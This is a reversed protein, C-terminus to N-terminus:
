VTLCTQNVPEILAQFIDAVRRVEAPPRHNSLFIADSYPDGPHYGHMGKPMWGKGHFNSRTLLVGPDMLFIVEGYRRDAFFVGLERLEDDSLVRGCPVANLFGVIQRRSEPNFFWYRAMTSDYVSLYDQPMVFGLSEVQSVLDFHERIPTMGHDSFISFVAESGAERAVDFLRRLETEYWRLRESVRDPELCHMHLFADFESLYLFFIDAARSKIEERARNLIEADRYQQYTYARYPVQNKALIDFFSPAGTIGGSEYISRKEAWNFWPLLRPSVCCEFQSGLGLFRRGIEKIVKKSVRSDLVSDPLFRLPRLWHFPSQTPDFYLLNWHGNQAPPRGTLITPIAGSSFGLVTEVRARYPLADALFNASEVYRWGLADILIFVHLQGSKNM